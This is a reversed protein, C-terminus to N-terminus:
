GGGFRRENERRFEENSLTAWDIPEVMRGYADVNIGPKDAYAKPNAVLFEILDQDSVGVEVQDKRARALRRADHEGAERVARTKATALDMEAMVERIEQGSSKFKQESM